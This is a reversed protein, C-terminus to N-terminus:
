ITGVGDGEAVSAGKAAIISGLHTLTVAYGDATMITVSRGSGPVTGAFTVSGSAPATVTEGLTAGLDVGRHQGAAYPQSPDFAFPEIVTGDVPWSWAGAAPSFSLATLLVALFMRLMPM